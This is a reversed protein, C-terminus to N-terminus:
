DDGINKTRVIPSVSKVLPDSKIKYLLSLFAGQRNKVRVYTIHSGHWKVFQLGYRNSFDNLENISLKDKFILTASGTLCIINRDNQIAPFIFEVHENKALKRLLGERKTPSLKSVKIIVGDYQHHPCDFSSTEYKFRLLSKTYFESDHEGFEASDKYIILIAANSYTQENFFYHSGDKRSYEWDSLLVPDITENMKQPTVKGQSDLNQDCALLFCVVILM